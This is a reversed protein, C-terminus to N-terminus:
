LGYGTNKRVMLSNFPSNRAELKSFSVSLENHHEILKVLALQIETISCQKNKLEEITPPVSLRLKPLSGSTNKGSAKAIMDPVISSEILENQAAYTNFKDAESDEFVLSHLANNEWTDLTHFYPTQPATNPPLPEVSESNIDPVASCDVPPLPIPQWHTPQIINDFDLCWVPVWVNGTSLLNHNYCIEYYNGYWGLVRTGDKPGTEIPLWKGDAPSKDELAEILISAAEIACFKKGGKLIKLAHEAAQRLVTSM